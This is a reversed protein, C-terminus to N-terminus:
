KNIIIRQTFLKENSQVIVSYTGAPLHRLDLQGKVTGTTNNLEVSYVSQGMTNIVRLSLKSSSINEVQLDFVGNGPNPYITIAHAPSVISAAGLSICPSYQTVGSDLNTLIFVQGFNFSTATSAIPTTAFQRPTTQLTNNYQNCNGLSNGASDTKVLYFDHLGGTLSNTYAGLVYGKDAAIVFSPAWDDGSGGFSHSWLLNGFSDTKLIMADSGGMSTSYVSGSIAYGSDATQMVCFGQEYDIGGYTRTWLTDGQANTRILFVDTAAGATVYGTLVYGGGMVERMMYGWDTLLTGYYNAWQITGAADTKVCYADISANTAAAAGSIIYGNDSTEQVFFGLEDSLTGYANSWIMNGSFDIKALFYDYNGAGYSNTYGCVMYNGDSTEMVSNAEDDGSGGLNRTWLTDGNADTKVLYVNYDAGQTTGVAIYGGDSSQIAYMGYDYGITGYSKAWMTDGNANTKVLFIDRDQTASSSDTGALIYGGDSTHQISSTICFSAGNIRFIRQFPTQAFIFSTTLLLCPLLLYKKM